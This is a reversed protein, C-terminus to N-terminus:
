LAQVLGPFHATMSKHTLPITTGLWSISRDHEQTNPTDNYLGLFQAIMNKHTLPM